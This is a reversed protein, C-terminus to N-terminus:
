QLQTIPIYPTMVVNRNRIHKFVGVSFSKQFYCCHTAEELGMLYPPIVPCFAARPYENGWLWNEEMERRVAPKWGDREGWGRTGRM